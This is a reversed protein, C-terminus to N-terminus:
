ARLGSMMRLKGNNNAPLISVYGVVPSSDASGGHGVIGCYNRTGILITAVKLPQM